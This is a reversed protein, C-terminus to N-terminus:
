YNARVQIVGATHGTGWRTTADSASIYRVEEVQRVLISRLTQLGGHRVDNIYVVPYGASPDSMSHVGRSRLFRPRVQQLLEYVNDARSAEIEERTIIDSSASRRSPSTTGCAVLTLLLLVHTARRTM